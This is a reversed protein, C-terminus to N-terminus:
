GSLERLGSQDNAGSLRRGGRTWAAVKRSVEHRNGLHRTEGLGRNTGTTTHKLAAARARKWGASKGECALARTVPTTQRRKRRWFARSVVGFRGRVTRSGDGFRGRVTRSDDGFRGRRIRGPGGRTASAGRAAGRGRRPRRRPRVASGGGSGGRVRGSGDGFRGPLIQGAERFTGALKGSPEPWSGRRIRGADGVPRVVGSGRPAFDSFFDHTFAGFAPGGVAARTGGETSRGVFIRRNVASAKVGPPPASRRGGAQGAAWRVKTKAGM